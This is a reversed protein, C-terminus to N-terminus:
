TFVSGIEALKDDTYAREFGIAELQNLRDM